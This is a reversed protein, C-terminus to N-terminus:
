KPQYSNVFMQMSTYVTLSDTLTPYFNDTFIKLDNMYKNCNKKMLKKLEQMNRRNYFGLTNGLNIVHNTEQTCMKSFAYMKDSKLHVIDINNYNDIIEWKSPDGGAWLREKTANLKKTEEFFKNKLNNRKVILETYAGCEMGIFKFFDKLYTKFIENQKYTIRKWNKFFKGLEEFAKTIEDKMM